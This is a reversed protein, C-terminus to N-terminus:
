LQAAPRVYSRRGVEPDDGLREPYDANGFLVTAGTDQGRKQPEIPGTERYGGEGSWRTAAEMLCVSIARRPHTSPNAGSSHLCHAALLVVEGAQLLLPVAPNVALAEDVRAATLFAAGSSRENGIGLLHSQPSVHICGNEPTQADLALYVSAKPDRDLTAWRDMHWGVREQGGPPKNILMARYVAVAESEGHLRQAVARFLPGRMYERLVPDHELGQVKCYSLTSGQSHGRGGQLKGRSDETQMLLRGYDLEAAPVRGLMIDDVRASLKGLEPAGLVGLSCFGQEVFQRWQTETIIIAGDDHEM